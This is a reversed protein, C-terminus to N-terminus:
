QFDLAVQPTAPYERRDHHRQHQQEHQDNRQAKTVTDIMPLASSIAIQACQSTLKSSGAGRLPDGIQWHDAIRDPLGPYLEGTKPDAIQPPLGRGIGEVDGLPEDRLGAADAAHDQMEEHCHDHRGNEIGIAFPRRGDQAAEAAPERAVAALIGDHEGPVRDAAHREADDHGREDLGAEAAGAERDDVYGECSEQGGDHENQGDGLDADPRDHEAGDDPHVPHAVRCPRGEQEDPRM